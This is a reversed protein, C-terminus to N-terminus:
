RKAIAFELLENIVDRKKKGEEVVLLEIKKDLDRYIEFGVRIMPRSSQAIQSPQYLMKDELFKETELIEVPAAEKNAVKQPTILVSEDVAPKDVVSPTEFLGIRNLNTQKREKKSM